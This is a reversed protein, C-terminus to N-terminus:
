AWPQKLILRQREPKLVDIRREESALLEIRFLDARAM